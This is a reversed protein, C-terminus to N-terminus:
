QQGIFTDIIIPHNLKFLAIIKGLFESRESVRRVLYKPRLLFKTMIIGIMNIIHGTTEWSYLYM